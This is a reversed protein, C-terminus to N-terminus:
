VPMVRARSKKVSTEGVCVTSSSAMMRRVWRALPKRPRIPPYPPAGECAIAPAGAQAKLMAEYLANKNELTFYCINQRPPVKAPVRAMHVLAVCPLARGVRLEVDDPSAIRFCQPVSALM